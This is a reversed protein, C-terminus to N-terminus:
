VTCPCCFPESPLSLQWLQHGPAMYQLDQVNDETGVDYPPLCIGEGVFVLCILLSSLQRLTLLVQQEKLPDSNLEWMQWTAGLRRDSWSSPKLVTKQGGRVGEVVHVCGCLCM